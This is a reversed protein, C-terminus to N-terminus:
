NRARGAHRRVRIANAVGLVGPVGGAIIAAHKREDRDHVWGRLEVIGDSEAGIEVPLSALIPDSMFASLVRREVESAAASETPNAEIEDEGFGYEEDAHAFADMEYVSDPAGQHPISTHSSMRRRRRRRRGPFGGKAHMLWAGLVFGAAAALTAGGFL